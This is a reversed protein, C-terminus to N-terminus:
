WLFVGALMSLVVTLSFTIIATANGLKLTEELYGFDMLIHRIGALTHYACATLIAWFLFKMLLHDMMCSAQIFGSPSALSVGLIWLLIGIAIFMVVGSIRHLISAVATIPFRITRLNLNIPRQKKVPKGM